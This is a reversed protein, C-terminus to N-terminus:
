ACFYEIQFVHMKNISKNIITPKIAVTDKMYNINRDIHRVDINIDQLIIKIEVLNTM